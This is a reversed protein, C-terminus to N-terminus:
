QQRGNVRIQYINWYNYRKNMSFRGILSRQNLQQLLAESGLFNVLTTQGPRSQDLFILKNLEDSDAKLFLEIICNNEITDNNLADMILRIQFDLNSFSLFIKYLYDKDEKINNLCYKGIEFRKQDTLQEIYVTTILELAQGRAFSLSHNDEDLTIELLDTLAIKKFLANEIEDWKKPVKSLRNKALIMINKPDSLEDVLKESLNVLNNEIMIKLTGISQNYGVYKTYQKVIELNNPTINIRNNDIVQELLDSEKQTAEFDMNQFDNSQSLFKTVEEDRNREVLFRLNQWSKSYRETEFTVNILDDSIDELKLDHYRYQRILQNKLDKSLVSSKLLEVLSDEREDTFQVIDIEVSVFESLNKDVFEQLKKNNIKKVLYYSPTIDLNDSNFADFISQITKSTFQVQNNDLLFDAAKISPVETLANLKILKSKYVAEIRNMSHEKFFHNYNLRDSNIFEILRPTTQLCQKLTDYRVNNLILAALKAFNSGTYYLWDYNLQQSMDNLFKPWATFLNNNLLYDVNHSFRSQSQDGFFRIAQEYANKIDDRMNANKAGYRILEAIVIGPKNFDM